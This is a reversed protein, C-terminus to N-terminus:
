GHGYLTIVPRKSWWRITLCSFRRATIKQLIHQEFTVAVDRRASRTSANRHGHLRIMMEGTANWPRLPFRLRDARTGAAGGVSSARAPSAISYPPSGQQSQECGSM